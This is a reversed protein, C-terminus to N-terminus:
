RIQSGRGIKPGISCASLWITEGSISFRQVLEAIVEVPRFSAAYARYYDTESRADVLVDRRTSFDFVMNQVDKPSKAKVTIM